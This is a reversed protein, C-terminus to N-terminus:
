VAYFFFFLFHQWEEGSCNELLEVSEAIFITWRRAGSVNGADRKPWRRRLLAAGFGHPRGGVSM